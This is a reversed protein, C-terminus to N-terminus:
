KNRELYIKDGEIGIIEWKDEALENLKNEIESPAERRHSFPSTTRNDWVLIKYEKM